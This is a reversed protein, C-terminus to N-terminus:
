EDRGGLINKIYEKVSLIETINKVDTGCFFLGNKLDGKVARILAENICYPTTSPVCTSICNLCRKAPCRNKSTFDVFDTKLARAPLGVPSQIVEVIREKTSLLTQKAIDELSSEKTFLFGTGIQVGDAGKKLAELIRNKTGFGGGIFVPIHIKEFQKKVDIIRKLEEFIDINLEERKFGLHGGAEPGEFVIFDPRRDYKKLWKKCILNLARASSVIPAIIKKSDIYEPLELPLGAGVVVGDVDTDNIFKLYNEFNNVVHMINVMIIGNGKSIKKAKEVENIFSRKNADISNELFDSERYGCNVFSITGMGGEAAVAGALEGMSIGIGMGGQVIPINMFKEKIKISM